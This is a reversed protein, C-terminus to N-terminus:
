STANILTNLWIVKMRFPVDYNMCVFAYGFPKLEVVQVISTASNLSWVSGIAM